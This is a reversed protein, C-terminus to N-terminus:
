IKIWESPVIKCKDNMEEDVFWRDPAIIIKEKNQNLWAGWWSFSSNAIINHKCLSMLYIDFCSDNGVNNTIYEKNGDFVINESAWDTDDSFIFFHPDPVKEKMLQVAKLYYEINCTGHIKNTAPDNVYDCRRIHVSISNTQSIRKEIELNKESLSKKIEFDKLITKRIDKFYEENQWYGYLYVNRNLIEADHLNYEDVFDWVLFEFYNKLFLKSLLRSLYKYKKLYNIGKSVNKSIFSCRTKFSDLGFQRGYLDPYSSIDFLIDQNNKIYLARGFAYQFM